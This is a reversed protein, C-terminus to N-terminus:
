GDGRDTRASGSVRTARRGSGAAPIATTAARATAASRGRSRTASTAAASACSSGSRARAPRRDRPVIRWARDTPDRDRARLDAADRGPFITWGTASRTSRTPTATASTRGPRARRRLRTVRRHWRGGSRRRTSRRSARRPPGRPDRTTSCAACSAARPACRTRCSRIPRSPWAARRRPGRRDDDRLSRYPRIPRDIFLASRPPRRPDHGGRRRHGRRAPRPRPGHGPGVLAADIREHDTIAIVDLDTSREVHDLIATSAPRATAPRAHPHAPRRPGTAPDARRESPAVASSRRRRRDRRSEM